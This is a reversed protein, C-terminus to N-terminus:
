LKLISWTYIPLNSEKELAVAPEDTFIQALAAVPPSSKHCNRRRELLPTSANGTAAVGRESRTQTKLHPITAASSGRVILQWDGGGRQLAARRPGVLRM